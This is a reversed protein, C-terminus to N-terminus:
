IATVRWFAPAARPWFKQEAKSIGSMVGALGFTDDSRRWAEGKISLGLSGAYGVDSFVWGEEQDDNWGLRSFVGM